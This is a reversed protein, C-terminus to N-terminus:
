KQLKKSVFTRASKYRSLRDKVCKEAFPDQQLKDFIKNSKQADAMIDKPDAKFVWPEDFTSGECEAAYKRLHYFLSQRDYEKCFNNACDSDDKCVVDSLSNRSEIDEKIGLLLSMDDNQAPLMLQTAFLAIALVIKNKVM